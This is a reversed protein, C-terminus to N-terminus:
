RGFILNDLLRTGALRVATIVATGATATKAPASIPLPSSRLTISPLGGLDGALM